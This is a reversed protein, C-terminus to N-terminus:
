NARMRALRKNRLHQAWSQAFYHTGDGKAVFYLFPVKKPYLAAKISAEGPSSIPGPPLGAHIYTNYPSQIELDRFSLRPKRYPLLYEVTACSELPMGIKLRNHFVASIIPREKDILAEKEIISALTLTRHLDWGLSDARKEYKKKWLSILREVMIEIVKEESVGPSIMYTDPFLYGELSNTKGIYGLRHRLERIFVPDHTLRLFRLTDIGLTGHLVRAIQRLTMGELVTVRVPVSRKEFALFLLVRSPWTGKPIRYRGPKLERDLGTLRALTLFFFKQTVGKEELLNAVSEASQGRKIVIEVGLNTDIPYLFAKYIFFIFLVLSLAVFFGKMGDFRM